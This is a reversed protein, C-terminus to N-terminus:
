QVNRLRPYLNYNESLTKELQLVQDWVNTCRDKKAEETTALSPRIRFSLPWSNFRHAQSQDLYNSLQHQSRKTLWPWTESAMPSMFAISATCLFLDFGNEKSLISVFLNDFTDTMSSEPRWSGDRIMTVRQWWPIPTRCDQPRVTASSDILQIKSWISDLTPLLLRKARHTWWGACQEQDPTLVEWLGLLHM